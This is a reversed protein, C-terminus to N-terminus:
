KMEDSSGPPCITDYSEMQIQKNQSRQMKNPRPRYSSSVTDNEGATRM